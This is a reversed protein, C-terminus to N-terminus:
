LETDSDDELAYGALVLCEDDTASGVLHGWKPLANDALRAQAHENDPEHETRRLRLKVLEVMDAVADSDLRYGETRRTRNTGSGRCVQTGKLTLGAAGLVMNVAKSVKNLDWDGKIGPSGVQFLRAHQGYDRFMPTHVLRENFVKMLDPIVTVDDFPSLLGLATITEELPTVQLIAKREAVDVDASPQCRLGPCLMRALLRVHPSGAYTGKAALFAEDVHDIGWAAKYSTVYHRWKDDASATGRSMRGKIENLEDPDVVPRAELMMAMTHPSAPGRPKSLVDTDDDGARAVRELTVRHGAATALQAFEHLYDAQANYREAEVYSAITLWHSPPPVSVVSTTVAGAWLDDLPQTHSHVRVKSMVASFDQSNSNSSSSSSSMRTMWNLWAMMEVSSLRPRSADLSARLNPSCLCQVCADHLKRVRFAMQLATAPLASMACVYVYMRKFHPASFDVGAAITPSYIVMQYRVWLADVNALLAKTADSSKSTHLLVRDAGLAAVANAHLAMARESSLSVVVVNLGASLDDMIHDTWAADDNTFAFTRPAVPPHDNVILTNSIGADRLLTWTADGWTADMTIIGRRACRLMSMFREMTEAPCPVTPSTFHRLLSEVEDVVVLDFRPVTRVGSLWHLSEVQCIVRPYRVRDSLSDRPTVDGYSVFGHAALKRKLELALSQRYTVVLATVGGGLRGLISDLVTTKGSGMCSRLSLAQTGGALWREVSARFPSRPPHPEADADAGADADADADAYADACSELYRQHIRVAGTLWADSEVRLPGLLHAPRDNCSPSFCKVHVRDMADVYCRMNQKGDHVVGTYCPEGRRDRYNFKVGLLPDRPAESSRRDHYASPHLREHLLDLMRTVILTRESGPSLEAAERPTRLERRKAVVAVPVQGPVDLQRRADPPDLCTILADTSSQAPTLPRVLALVSGPKDFKSAGVARMERDKTYVATDVLPGLGDPDLDRIRHALHWAGSPDRSHNSRFVWQPARTCVTLHLSLKKPDPSVMWILDSLQLDVQYDSRFLAIVLRDAHEIVDDLTTFRTTPLPPGDVDLYPKCPWGHPIVEFLHRRHGSLRRLHRVADTWTAYCAFQRAGSDPDQLQVMCQALCTAAASKMRDKAGAGRHWETGFLRMPNM